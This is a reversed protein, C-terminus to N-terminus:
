EIIELQSAKNVIMPSKKEEPERPSDYFLKSFQTKDEKGSFYQKSAETEISGLSHSSKFQLPSQSKTLETSVRELNLNIKNNVTVLHDLKQLIQKGIM